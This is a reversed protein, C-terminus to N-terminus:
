TTRRPTTNSTITRITPNTEDRVHLDILLAAGWRDRLAGLTLSLAAHYPTHVAAVRELLELHDIPQKWVEGM